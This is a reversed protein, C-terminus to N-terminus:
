VYSAALYYTGLLARNEATSFVLASSSVDRDKCNRALGLEQATAVCIQIMLALQQKGPRYIYHYYASHVLLGQLMELGKHSCEIIRAAVQEKFNEALIRQTSPTRYTMATMISLFLFPRERRFTNVDVSADVIVFPFCQSCGTRFEDLLVVADDEELLGIHVPDYPSFADVLVQIPSDEPTVYPQSSGDLSSTNMKNHRSTTVTASSRVRPLRSPTIDSTSLMDMLTEVQHELQKM